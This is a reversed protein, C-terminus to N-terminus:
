IPVGGESLEGFDPSPAARESKKISYATLELTYSLTGEQENSSVNITSVDLIRVNEELDELFTRTSQYGPAELTLNIKIPVLEIASSRRKKIGKPESTPSFQVNTLRVENQKSLESMTLLLKPIGVDQPLAEDVRALTEAPISEAAAISRELSNLFSREDELTQLKTEIDGNVTKFEAYLPNIVFYSGGIFIGILFLFIIGYYETFLKSSEKKKKKGEGKQEPKSSGPRRTKFAAPKKQGSSAEKEPVEIESGEHLFDPM